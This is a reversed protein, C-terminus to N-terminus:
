YKLNIDLPLCAVNLLLVIMKKKCLDYIKIFYM